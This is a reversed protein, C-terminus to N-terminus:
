GSGQSERLARALARWPTESHDAVDDARDSDGALRMCGLTGQGAAKETSSDM